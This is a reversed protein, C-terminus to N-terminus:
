IVHCFLISSGQQSLPFSHGTMYYINATSLEEGVDCYLEHVAKGFLHPFPLAVRFEENTAYTLGLLLHSCPVM